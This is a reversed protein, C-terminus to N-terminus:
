AIVCKAWLTPIAGQNAYSASALFLLRVLVVGVLQRIPGMAKRVGFVTEMSVLARKELRLTVAGALSLTPDVITRIRM